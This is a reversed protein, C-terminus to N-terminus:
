NVGKQIIIIIIIIIIIGHIVKYFISLFTAGGGRGEGRRLDM